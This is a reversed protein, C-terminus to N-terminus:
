AILLDAKKIWTSLDDQPVLRKLTAHMADVLEATTCGIFSTISGHLKKDYTRAADHLLKDLEDFNDKEYDKDM